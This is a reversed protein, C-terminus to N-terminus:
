PTNTPRNSAPHKALGILGGKAEAILSEITLDLGLASDVAGLRAAADKAAKGRLTTHPRGLVKQNLHVVTRAPSIRTYWRHGTLVIYDPM